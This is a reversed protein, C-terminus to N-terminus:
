FGDETSDEEELITNPILGNRHRGRDENSRKWGVIEEKLNGDGIPLIGTQKVKPLSDRGLRRRKEARYSSLSRGRPEGHRSDLNLLSMLFASAYHLSTGTLVGVM